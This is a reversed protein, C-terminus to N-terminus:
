FIIERVIFPTHVFSQMLNGKENFVLFSVDDTVSRYYEEYIDRIGHPMVGDFHRILYMRGGNSDNLFKEVTDKYNGELENFRIYGFNNFLDLGFQSHLFQSISTVRTKFEDPIESNSWFIIQEPVIVTINGRPQFLIKFVYRLSNILSETIIVEDGIGISM